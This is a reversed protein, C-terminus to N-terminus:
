FFCGELHEHEKLSILCALITVGLCLIGLFWKINSEARQNDHGSPCCERDLSRGGSHWSSNHAIFCSDWNERMTESYPRIRWANESGWTKMLAHSPQLKLSIFSLVWSAGKTTCIWSRDQQGPEQHLIVLFCAGAFGGNTHKNCIRM